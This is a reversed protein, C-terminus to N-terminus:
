TEAIFEAIIKSDIKQGFKQSCADQFKKFSSKAKPIDTLSKLFDIVSQKSPEAPIWKELIRAETEEQIWLDLRDNNKYTSANEIREKYLKKVIDVADANPDNSSAYNFDSKINRFGNLENENKAGGLMIQAHISNDLFQVFEIKNM